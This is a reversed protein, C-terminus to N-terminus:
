IKRESEARERVNEISSSEHFPAVGCVMVSASQIFCHVHCLCELPLLCIPGGGGPDLLQLNM